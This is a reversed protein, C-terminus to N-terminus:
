ELKEFLKPDLKENVVIRELTTKPGTIVKGEFETSRVYPLLLKGVEKFDSFTKVISGFGAGGRGQFRAQLIRGSKPDIALTTTAGRVGVELLEVDIEGVKETRGAIAVFGKEERAKLIVIPERHFQRVIVARVSDELPWAIQKSTSFGTKATAVNVGSWGIYSDEERFQGPFECLWEKKMLFDEKGKQPYAIQYTLRLSKLGDVPEAGGFGSLALEVLEQGRKQQAPTGGPPEEATELYRAPAAQFSTRCGESAFIFIRNDHVYWRQRKYM